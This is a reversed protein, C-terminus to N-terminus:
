VGRPDMEGEILEGCGADCAVQRRKRLTPPSFGRVHVYFNVYSPMKSFGEQGFLEDGDGSDALSVGVFRFVSGQEFPLDVLIAISQYTKGRM